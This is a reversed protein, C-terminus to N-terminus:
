RGRAVGLDRGLLLGRDRGARQLDADAQVGLPNVRFQFARREDNFADFKFGVHDDQQFTTIADRDALHARIEAPEPRARPLRRLHEVRRLHRPVGHARAAAHQRGPLVRLAARPGRGGALRGRRARRRGPDCGTRTPGRADAAASGWSGRCGRRSLRGRRRPGCRAPCFAPPSFSPCTLYRGLPAGHASSFWAPLPRTGM